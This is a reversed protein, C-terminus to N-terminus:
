KKRKKIRSRSTVKLYNKYGKNAKSVGQNIQVSINLLIGVAILNMILSSGGYSIFPLTIGTVPLLNLSIGINIFAYVLISSTIGFALLQGKRDPAHITIWLGRWLFGLFLILLIFCGIIGAEEGIISYIFDTFPQPLHHMKQRSNGIGIGAFGGNGFSILSQLVQYAPDSVGRVANIFAMLRDGQYQFIKVVIAAAVIGVMVLGSLHYISAGALFILMLSLIFIIVATGLDPELVIPFVVLGVMALVPFLGERLDKLKKEKEVLYVSLFILLAYKAMESPQFFIGNIMLSRKSGNLTVGGVLVFLLLIFSFALIIPAIKQLAQYDIKIFLIMLILGLGLRFLHKNLYHQSNNIEENTKAKYSSASYIAATGIVILLLVIILLIVDFKIKNKIQNKM